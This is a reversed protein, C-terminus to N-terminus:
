QYFTLGLQYFALLQVLIFVNYGTFKLFYERKRLREENVLLKYSILSAMSAILTGLGGFNVGILLKGYDSTFGSILLAAPVNSIVQSAAIGVSLEHGTVIHKLFENVAPIREMNGIFIFFGVFTLLLCYDVNKLANRDTIWVAVIVILLVVACPLIRAVVLLSLVFLIIYLMLQMSEKRGRARKEATLVLTIKEKGAKRFLLFAAIIVGSILTYPAMYGLFEGLSMGTLNYLYLNQPNGIPTFMSGLNAAITQMVVVFIMEDEREAMKLTLIAFPVFTILSVDNTILMSCFFCLFVLVFELQRLNPTKKLLFAAIAEFVGLGGFGGMVTMLCFLIALVRGDVYDLYGADPRVFFMSCVALVAAACLVTEGKIFDLIKSRM